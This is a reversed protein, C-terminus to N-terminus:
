HTKVQKKITRSKTGSKEKVYKIRELYKIMRSEDILYFPTDIDIDKMNKVEQGIM